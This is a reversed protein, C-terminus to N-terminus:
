YLDLDREELIRSGRSAQDSIDRALVLEVPGTKFERPAAHDVRCGPGGAPAAWTKQQREDQAYCGGSADIQIDAVDLLL